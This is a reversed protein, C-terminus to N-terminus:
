EGASVDRWAKLRQRLAAAHQVLNDHLEALAAAPAGRAQRQFRDAAERLEFADVLGAHSKIRHAASAAAMADDKRLAGELLAVEQELIELYMRAAQGAQDPDDYGIFRFVRTDLRLPRTGDTTARRARVEGLVRAIADADFPKLAFGDMGATRGRQRIEDSDHATTAIVIADAITPIARLRRTLEDGTAGPLEWDAFVVAYPHAEALALAEEITSAVDAVFGLQEAIRRVVIQNYPQDEVVLARGAPTTTALKARTPAQEVPSRDRKLRVRLFFTAGPGALREAPGGHLPVASAPSEVAVHGGLLGALARCTALGLGTGAARQTRAASGRIFKKFIQEQEDAPIGPGGDTVNFTLEAAFDDLADCEVVIEVPTGPAYKLANSVFNGLISKIKEADGLWHEPMEGARRVRLESGRQRAQLRFLATVDDLMETLAFPQERMVVAGHELRAFNLVEDFVRVLAKACAGLSQALERERADLPAERLMTVLGIIGNLPNRIEHSISELFEERARTSAEAEEKAIRLDRTRETIAVELRRRERGHAASRWRYAGVVLGIAMFGALGLVWPDEYFHAQQVFTVTAGRENWVGDGNRAIVQFEYKGPRLRPYYASRRDDAQVWDDDFGKLRYNFRVRGPATYSLGAYDIAIGRTDPPLTIESASTQRQGNVLVREIHVTPARLNPRMQTPDVRLMGRRTAFWMHGEATRWANPFCLLDGVGQRLGEAVNVVRLRNLPLKGRMAELLEDRAVMFVGRPATMWLNGVSDELMSIVQQDLMEATWDPALWTDGDQVVLGRGHTGIWVRDERDVFVFRLESTPLGQARGFVEVQEGRIRLAGDIWTGVWIDGTATEAFSSPSCNALDPPLPSKAFVGEQWVVFGANQRGLWMRGKSDEFIARVGPLESHLETKGGRTIRLADRGGIWFDGHRTVYAALVEGVDPEGLAGPRVRQVDVDSVVRTYGQTGQALWIVGNPDQMVTRFGTATNRANLGLLQYATARIRMLGEGTTGAWLNGERDKCLGHFIRASTPALVDIIELDARIIKQLGSNAVWLGGAPDVYLDTIRQSNLGNDTGFTTWAGDKFRVLGQATGFWLTGRPEEAIAFVEARVCGHTDIPELRGNRYTALGGWGAFGAWFHGEADAFVAQAAAHPLAPDAPIPEVQSHHLRAVGTDTGVWLDGGSDESIALISQDVLGMAEFTGHHQRLLGRETGVWLDGLHDEFLELVAHSTMAPTNTIRFTTFKMGDFRALGGDTGVWIYDDRTQVVATVSAQPLGKEMGWAEIVEAPQNKPLPFAHLSSGGLICLLVVLLGSKTISRKLTEGVRSLRVAEAVFGSSSM